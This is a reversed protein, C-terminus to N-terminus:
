WKKFGQKEVTYFNPWGKGHFLSCHLGTGQNSLRLKMNRAALETYIDPHNDELHTFLNTTNSRKPTITKHCHSCIPKEIEATDSLGDMNGKLGFHVWVSITHPKMVLMCDESLSENDHEESM